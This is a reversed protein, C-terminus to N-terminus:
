GAETKLDNLFAEIREANVGLDSRGVRSVSRMDVRTGGDDARIRIVVDDKFRFVKTTDTAEIIGADADASVLEWGRDSVLDLALNFVEGADQGLILPQVNPYAEAQLESVLATEDGRFGISAMKGKYDLTNSEEGRLAIVEVFTPPDEMDTTIDHIMPADPAFAVVLLVLVVVIGVIALLARKLFRGM